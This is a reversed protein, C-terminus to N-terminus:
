REKSEVIAMADLIAHYKKMSCKEVGTTINSLHSSCFGMEISVDMARGKRKLYWERIADLQDKTPNKGERKETPKPNVIFSPLVQIAGGNKLFENVENALKESLKRTKTM